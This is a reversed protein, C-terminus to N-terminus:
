KYYRLMNNYWFNIKKQIVVVSSYEIGSIAFQNNKQFKFDFGARITNTWTIVM